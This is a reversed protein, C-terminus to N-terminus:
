NYKKLFFVPVVPKVKKSPYFTYKHLYEDKKAYNYM